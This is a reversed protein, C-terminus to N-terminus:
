SSPVLPREASASKGLKRIAKIRELVPPHSHHITVYFPHPTLHTLNHASLKKLASIMSAGDGTTEVSYRDAEYEHKRSLAHLIISVILEAPGFALAFLVLGAYVSANRVFFTEFLPSWGMVLSLLLFIAGMQGISVIMGKGIHRKKYHGIEHALVSVLESVSHSNVLTDFLAIRKSKGFGTFFANSKTSRKSGDMVFIDKLSFNVSRAYSLIRERLEGDGLPVFKNFLPMIWAPAIYQVIVIFAASTGWCYLWAAPGAKEFLWLIAALLPVGLVVSLFLSKLLDTIYLIPTTKNFGFRQEIVFTSYVAFPLAFVSRGLLLIGIYFVGTAVAGTNWGRVILDLANFGGLFWFCIVAATSITNALMGFKTRAATYEQSTRYKEGSFTEAFEPPLGSNLTKLNLYDALIGFFYELLFASLILYRM